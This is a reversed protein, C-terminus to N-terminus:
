VDEIAMLVLASNREQFNIISQIDFIRDNFSIRMDTTLGPLFRTKIKHTVQSQVQSASFYEKGNIPIIQARATNFLVWSDIGEGIANTATSPQLFTIKHRLTGSRM